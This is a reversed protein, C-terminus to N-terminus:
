LARVELGHGHQTFYAVNSEAFEQPTSFALERSETTIVSSGTLPDTRNAARCFIYRMQGDKCKIQFTINKM